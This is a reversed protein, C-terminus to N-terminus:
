KRAATGNVTFICVERTKGWIFNTFIKLSRAGVSRVFAKDITNQHGKTTIPNENWPCAVIVTGTCLAQLGRIFKAPEPVHEVVHSAIVINWKRDKINYIDSKIFEVDPCICEKLMAFSSVIDVATVKMKLNNFTGIRHLAQLLRTGAFTQPGVDLVDLQINQPEGFCLEHIIPIIECM